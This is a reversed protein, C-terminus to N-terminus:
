PAVGEGCVRVKARLDSKLRGMELQLETITGTDPQLRRREMEKM